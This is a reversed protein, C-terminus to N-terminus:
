TDTTKILPCSIRLDNAMTGCINVLCRGKCKKSIFCNKCEQLLNSHLSRITNLKVSKEWLMKLDLNGERVNGIKLEDVGSAATCPFIDGKYNIHLRDLGSTCKEHKSLVSLQPILLRTCYGAEVSIGYRDKAVKFVKSAYAIENRDPVVDSYIYRARGSPALALVRIKKVGIAALKEILVDYSDCRNHFLVFFCTLPMGADVLIQTNRLTSEFSGKTNTVKDHSDANGGLFTISISEFHTLVGKPKVMERTLLTGNTHIHLPLGIKDRCIHVVTDLKELNMLPEGGTLGLRNLGVSKASLLVKEIEEINLCDNDKVASANASCHICNLNCSHNVEIDLHELKCSKNIIQYM